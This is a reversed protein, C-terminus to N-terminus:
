CPFGKRWNGITQEENADSIEDPHGKGDVNRSVNQERNHIKQSPPHKRELEGRGKQARVLMVKLMGKHCYSSKRGPVEFNKWGRGM